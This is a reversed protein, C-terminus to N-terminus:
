FYRERGRKKKKWGNNTRSKKDMREETGEGEKRGPNLTGKGDEAYVKYKIDRCSAQFSISLLYVPYLCKSVAVALSGLLLTHNYAGQVRVHLWNEHLHDRKKLFLVPRHVSIKLLRLRSLLDRCGEMVKDFSLLIYQYTYNVTHTGEFGETPISSTRNILGHFDCVYLICVTVKFRKPWFFLSTRPFERTSKVCTLMRVHVCM